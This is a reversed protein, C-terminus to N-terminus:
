GQPAGDNAVPEDHLPPVGGGVSLAHGLGWGRARWREETTTPWPVDLDLGDGVDRLAAPLQRGRMEGGGADVRISLRQEVRLGALEIEHVDGGGRGLMPRDGDRGQLAPQVDQAFLGEGGGDLVGPRHQLLRPDRSPHDEGAVVVLVRRHDLLHAGEDVGAADAGHV